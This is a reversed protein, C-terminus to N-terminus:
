LGGRVSDMVNAVLREVSIEVSDGLNELAEDGLSVAWRGIIDEEGYVRALSGWYRDLAEVSLTVIDKEWTPRVPM